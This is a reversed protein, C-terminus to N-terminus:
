VQKEVNTGGIMIHDGTVLKKFWRNESKFLRRNNMQNNNADQEEAVLESQIPTTTNLITTAQPIVPEVYDSPQGEM